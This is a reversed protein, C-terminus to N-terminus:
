QKGKEVSRNNEIGITMYRDEIRGSTVQTAQRKAAVAAMATGGGDLLALFEM